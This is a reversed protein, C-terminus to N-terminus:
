KGTSHRSAQIYRNRTACAPAAAGPSVLALDDSQALTPLSPQSTRQDACSGTGRSIRGKADASQRSPRGTNVRRGREAYRHCDRRRSFRPVSVARRTCIQSSHMAPSSARDLAMSRMFSNMPLHTDPQDQERDQDAGAVGDDALREVHRRVGPQLQLPIQEAGGEQQGGGVRQLLVLMDADVDDVAHERAAHLVPDVKEPM